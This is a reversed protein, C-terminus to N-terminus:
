EMTEESSYARVSVSLKNGYSLLSADVNVNVDKWPWVALFHRILYKMQRPRAGCGTSETAIRFAHGVTQTQSRQGCTLM